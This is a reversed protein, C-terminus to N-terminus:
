RARARSGPRSWTMPIWSCSTASNYTLPGELGWEVHRRVQTALDTVILEGLAPVDGPISPLELTQLPTSNTTTTGYLVRARAYPKCTLEVDRGPQEVCALREGLPSRCGTIEGALVHVDCAAHRGAPTWVLGIGSRTSSAKRLKDVLAGVKAFALNM